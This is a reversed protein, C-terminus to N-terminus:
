RPASVGRQKLLLLVQSIFYHELVNCKYLLGFYLEYEIIFCKKHQSYFIKKHSWFWEVDVLRFCERLFYLDSFTEVMFHKLYIICIALTHHGTARHRSCHIIDRVWRVIHGSRDAINELEGGYSHRTEAARWTFMTSLESSNSWWQLERTCWSFRVMLM